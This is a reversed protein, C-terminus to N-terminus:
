AAAHGSELLEHSKANEADMGEALGRLMACALEHGQRGNYKLRSPCEGPCREELPCGVCQTSGLEYGSLANLKSFDPKDITGLAVDDDGMPKDAPIFVATLIFLWHPEPPPM